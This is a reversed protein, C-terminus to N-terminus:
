PFCSASALSSLDGGDGHEDFSSTFSEAALLPTACSSSSPPLATPLLLWTLLAHPLPRELPSLFGLLQRGRLAGRGM